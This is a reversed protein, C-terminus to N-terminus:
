PVHVHSTDPAPVYSPQGTHTTAARYRNSTIQPAPRPISVLYRM